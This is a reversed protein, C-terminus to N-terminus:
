RAGSGKLSTYVIGVFNDPTMFGKGWKEDLERTPHAAVVEAQTKGQRVLPAIRDRVGALMDRYAVLAARDALPGHGPIIKTNADVLTLMKEVGALMGLFSGGSSLDVFPYFGNFFLDGAHLVNAKDFRVVADGDTHAPPVHIAHVDDGNLHLTATDAFTVVPLARATSAPFRQNLAQIFQDSGMRVRVNDHAVILAGAEGLDKNGGTHDPHWHTSLVFRVPKDSLAAVAAKVKPTMPAWEDDILFVAEPGVAVGINGGAGSLMYVGDAVKTTTIQVKDFDQQTFAPIAALCVALGTTLLPAFPSPRM